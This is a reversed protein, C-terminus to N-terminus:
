KFIILLGIKPLVQMDFFLGTEIKSVPSVVQNLKTPVALNSSAVGADRVSHEVM